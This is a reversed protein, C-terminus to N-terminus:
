SILDFVSQCLERAKREWIESLSVLAKEMDNGFPRNTANIIGEWPFVKRMENTLDEKNGM